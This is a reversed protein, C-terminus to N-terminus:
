MYTPNSIHYHNEAPQQFDSKDIKKQPVDFNKQNEHKQFLQYFQDFTPRQSPEFLWSQKILEFIDEPCDKPKSLRFGEECVM